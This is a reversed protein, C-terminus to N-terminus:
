GVEEHSVEGEKEFEVEEYWYQITDDEKLVVKKFLLVLYLLVLINIIITVSGGFFTKSAEERDVNFPVEKGFEDYKKAKKRATELM